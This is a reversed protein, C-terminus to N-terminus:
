IPNALYVLTEPVEAQPIPELATPNPWLQIAERLPSTSLGRALQENVPPLPITIQQRNGDPFTATLATVDPTKTMEEQIMAWEQTPGIQQFWHIPPEPRPRQYTPNDVSM